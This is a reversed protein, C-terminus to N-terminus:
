KKGDEKEKKEDEKDAKGAKAKERAEEAATTEETANIKGSNADVDIELLKKGTQVLVEYQWKGDEHELNTKGALKGPYKKVAIQEAQKATLKTKPADKALGPRAGASILALACALASVFLRLRQPATM